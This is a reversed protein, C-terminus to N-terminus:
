DFRLTPLNLKEVSRLLRDSNSCVIIEASHRWVHIDDVSNGAYIFQRDGFHQVLCNAKAKARLNIVGDSAFVKSFIGVHDAVAQAYKQDAATALYITSGDQYEGYLYTLLSQRYPLHQPDLEVRKALEHKFYARGRSIWATAQALHLVNEQLYRKMSLMTVDNYILTGDLDICLPLKTASKNKQKSM